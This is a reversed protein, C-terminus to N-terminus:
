MALNPLFIILRRTFDLLMQMIWPLFLALAVVV